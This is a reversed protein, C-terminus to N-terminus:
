HSDGPLKAYDVDTFASENPIRQLPEFNTKWVDIECPSGKEDVNLSVIVVVGDSDVFQLESAQSKSKAFLDSSSSSFLRLSGMGGDDMEEVQFDEISAVLSMDLGSREMLALLLRKEDQKLLRKM